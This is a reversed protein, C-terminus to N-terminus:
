QTTESDAFRKGRKLYYISDIVALPIKLSRNSGGVGGCTCEAIDAALMLTHDNKAILWGVSLVFEKDAIDDEGREEWGSDTESDCWRVIVLDPKDYTM